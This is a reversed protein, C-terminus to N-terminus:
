EWEVSHGFCSLRPLELLDFASIFNSGNGTITFVLKDQSLNWNALIDQFAEALNQGTHDM